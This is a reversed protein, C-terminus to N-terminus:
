NGQNCAELFEAKTVINKTDYGSLPWTCVLIDPNLGLLNVTQCLKKSRGKLAQGSKYFLLDGTLMVKQRPFYFIFYEDTHESVVNYIELANTVDDIRRGEKATTIQLPKIDFSLSDPYLNHPNKVIDEVLSVTTPPVIITAGERVWSRVGGIYQGHLHSFVFYKVPKQFRERIKGAIMDCIRSNYAGEIVVLFNMFEAIMVRTNIPALDISYINAAIETFKIDSESILLTHDRKKDGDPISFEIGRQLAGFKIKVLERGENTITVYEPHRVNDDTTHKDYYLQEAGDGFLSHYLRRQLSAIRGTKSDLIISWLENNWAFLYGSAHDPEVNERRELISNAVIEPHIAAITAASLDGFSEPVKELGSEDIQFLRGRRVYYSEQELKDGNIWELNIASEGLVPNVELTITIDYKKFDGPRWPHSADTVFGTGIIRFPSAESPELKKFLMDAASFSETSLLILAAAAM